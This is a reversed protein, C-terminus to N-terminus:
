NYKRKVFWEDDNFTFSFSIRMYREEIATGQGRLGLSLGLNAHSIKRQYFFPFGFGVNFSMDKVTEGQNISLVENPVTEYRFGFRYYVRSFYSTVSKYNPRYFGGFSLKYTNNLPNNVFEADFNSWNSSSYNFGLAFKEGGFYTAGIGLESPLTGSAEVAMDQRITDTLAPNSSQTFGYQLFTRESNFGTNGNGYIGIALSKLSATEKDEFAKQNFYHTYIAGLSYLFGSVRINEDVITIYSSPQDLFRLTNLNQIRGFQYGLNLGFSLNKYKVGNSWLVQYSGGNGSFSRNIAGLNETSDQTAINYGVNSFPMLTFATTFSWDRSKRDLIDNLRNQLPIALSMYAINGGWVTQYADSSQDRLGSQEAFVGVDFTTATLHGLAAPNVINIQYPSTYSGGLGGMFQSYFFNRDGIDGIGFRSYPSNQKPQAIITISGLLLCFCMFWKM